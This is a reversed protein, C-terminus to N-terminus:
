EGVKFLDVIKYDTGRYDILNKKVYANHLIADDRTKTTSRVGTAVITFIWEPSVVSYVMEVHTAKGDTFWFVLDGRQPMGDIEQHEHRLYLMHATCDFGRPELGHAQLVEHITGSCDLGSPDDGGWSGFTGIWAFLYDVMEHRLTLEEPKTMFFKTTAM